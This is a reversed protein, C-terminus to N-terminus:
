RYPWQTDVLVSPRIQVTTVAEFVGETPVSVRVKLEGFSPAGLNRWDSRLAESLRSPGRRVLRNSTQRGYIGSRLGSQQHVAGSWGFMPKLSNRLPLKFKAVGDSDFDVKMTWRVPQTGTNVFNQFDALPMRSKLEFTAHARMVVARDHSDRLMVQARWGDPDADADFNALVASLEAYKPRMSAYQELAVRQAVSQDFSARAITAAGLTANSPIEAVPIEAVSAPAEAAPIETVPSLPAVSGPQHETPRYSPVVHHSGNLQIVTQGEGVLPPDSDTITPADLSERMIPEREGSTSPGLETQRSNTVDADASRPEQSNAVGAISVLIAAFLIILLPRRRVPEENPTQNM